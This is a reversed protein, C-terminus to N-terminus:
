VSWEQTRIFANLKTRKKINLLLESKKLIYVIRMKKKDENLVKIM